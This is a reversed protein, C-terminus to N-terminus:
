RGPPAEAPRHELGTPARRPRLDEGPMWGLGELDDLVQKGNVWAALSDDNRVVLVAQTKAPAFVRTWAYAVSNTVDQGGLVAKVDVVLKDAVAATWGEVGAPSEASEYPQPDNFQDKPLNGIAKSVKWPVAQVAKAYQRLEEARAQWDSKAAAPPPTYAAWQAQGYSEVLATLCQIYYLDGVPLWPVDIYTKLKEPPEGLVMARGLFTTAKIDPGFSTGEGFLTESHPPLPIYWFAYRSETRDVETRISQKHRQALFRATEPVLNILAYTIPRRLPRGSQDPAADEFRKAAAATLATFDSLPGSGGALATALKTAAGAAKDDGMHQAIRAFGIIGALDEVTPPKGTIQSEYRLVVYPYQQEVYDWRDLADAYAWLAYLAITAPCENVSKWTWRRYRFTRDAAPLKYTERFTGQDYPLLFDYPLLIINTAPYAALEKALYDAAKAAVEPSLYPKARAPGARHRGPRHLLLLEGDRGAPRAM